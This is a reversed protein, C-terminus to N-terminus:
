DQYRPTLQGAGNDQWRFTEPPRIPIVGPELTGSEAPLSFEFDPSVIPMPRDANTLSAAGLVIGTLNGMADQRVLLFTATASITGATLMAPERAALVTISSTKGTFTFGSIDDGSLDAFGELGADLTSDRGGRKAIPYLATVMPTDGRWAGEMQVAPVKEGAIGFSQWGRFPFMDGYHQTYRVPEPNFNLIGLNPRYHSVTAIMKRTEDSRVESPTYGQTIQKGYYLDEDSPELFYTTHNLGRDVPPFNWTQIYESGGDIEDVLVWFKEQRLFIALRRHVARLKREGERKLRTNYAIIEACEDIGYDDVLKAMSKDSVPPESHFGGDYVGETLDFQASHHLLNRRPTEFGATTNAPKVAPAGQVLGDVSLGNAMFIHGIRPAGFYHVYKKQHDPLHRAGYAPSGSDLLLWAGYAAVQISNNDHHGHGVGDRSSRMFLYLDDPTWGSRQVYYGGHPLGVSTFAPESGAVPREDVSALLQTMANKLGDLDGDAVHQKLYKRARVDTPQQNGVAPYTAFPTALSAYMYYRYDTRRNLEVLWEPWNDRDPFLNNLKKRDGFLRMNYNLSAELDTGDPMVTGVAKRVRHIGEARLEAADKVEPFLQAFEIIAMANGWVQNSVNGRDDQLGAGLCDTIAYSLTDALIRPPVDAEPYGHRLMWALNDFPLLPHGGDFGIFMYFSDRPQGGSGKEAKTLRNWIPKARRVVDDLMWFFADAYETKEPWRAWAKALHTNVCYDWSVALDTGPGAWRISRKEQHIALWKDAEDKNVYNSQIPELHSAKLRPVLLDRLATLAAAYQQEEYAACVATLNPHSLDLLPILRECAAKDTPERIDLVVLPETFPNVDNPLLPLTEIAALKTADAAPDSSAIRFGTDCNIWFPYSPHRTDATFLRDIVFSGGRMVRWHGADPGHPNDTGVQEYDIAYRDWVWEEVNGAMDHLGFANPKKSAVALPGGDIEDTGWFHYAAHEANIPVGQRPYDGWYFTTTTGARYAYEWEAETPLRYGDADWKVDAGVLDIRGKRYVDGAPQYVPTKGTMESLANCWKAADYWMINQAPLTAQGIGEEFAYGHQEGWARVAQYHSWTVETSQMSFADVKITKGDSRQYSSAPIRKMETATLSVAVSLLIAALLHPNRARMHESREGHHPKRDTM